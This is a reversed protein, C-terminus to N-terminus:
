LNNHITEGGGIASVEMAFLDRISLEIDDLSVEANNLPLEFAIANNM